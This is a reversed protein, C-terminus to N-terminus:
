DTHASIRGACVVVDGPSNSIIQLQVVQRLHVSDGAIRSMWVVNDKVDSGVRVSARPNAGFSKTVRSAQIVVRVYLSVQWGHLRLNVKLTRMRTGVRDCCGYAVPHASGLRWRRDRIEEFSM